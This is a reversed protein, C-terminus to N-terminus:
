PLLSNAGGLQTQALRDMLTKLDTGMINASSLSNGVGLLDNQLIDKFNLENTFDRGRGVNASQSIANQQQGIPAVGGGPMVQMPANMASKFTLATNAEGPPTESFLYRTIESGLSRELKSGKNFPGFDPLPM